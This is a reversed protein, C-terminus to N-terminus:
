YCVIVYYQMLKDEVCVCVCEQSVKSKISVLEATWVHGESWDLPIASSPDWLGLKPDDGVILFQEGFMCEKQLQFKVQVSKSEDTWCLLLIQYIILEELLKFQYFIVFNIM